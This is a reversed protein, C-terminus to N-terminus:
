GPKGGADGALGGPPHKWWGGSGFEQGVSGTVESDPDSQAQRKGVKGGGAETYATFGDARSIM